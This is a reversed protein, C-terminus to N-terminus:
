VHAGMEPDVCRFIGNKLVETKIEKLSRLVDERSAFPSVLLVATGRFPPERELGQENPVPKHELTPALSYQWVFLTPEDGSAYGVCWGANAVNSAAAHDALISPMVAGPLSSNALFEHCINELAVADHSRGSTAKAKAVAAEFIEVQDPDPKLTLPKEQNSIETRPKGELESKLQAVTLLDAKEVCTSFKNADYNKAAAAACILRLKSGGLMKVDDWPVNFERLVNYINILYYAKSKKFGFKQLCLEAFSSYSAFWHKEKIRLLVGGLAFRNLAQEILLNDLQDFAAAEDGLDEIVQTARSLPDPMMVQPGQPTLDHAANAPTTMYLTVTM